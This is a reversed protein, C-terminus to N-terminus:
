HAFPIVEDAVSQAAPDHSAIVVTAGDDARARLEALVQDALERDLSATPEDAVIADPGRMLARALAVRHREGGSLRAPSHGTRHGLHLKDLLSVADATHRRVAARGDPVVPLLVNDLATLSAVLTAHQDIYALRGRRLDRREDEAMRTLDRGWWRVTGNTPATLGVLCRLLSTKGSGSRGTVCTLTGVRALFTLDDVVNIKTGDSRMHTVTLSRVHAAVDAATDASDPQADHQEELTM